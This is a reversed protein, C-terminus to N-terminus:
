EAEAGTSKLLLSNALGNLEDDLGTVVFALVSLRATVDKLNVNLGGFTLFNRALDRVVVVALVEDLVLDVL